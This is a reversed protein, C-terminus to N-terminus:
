EQGVGALWGSRGLLGAPKNLAAPSRLRAMAHPPKLRQGAYLPHFYPFNNALRDAVDELVSRTREQDGTGEFAPLEAFGRESKRLPNWLLTLSSIDLGM